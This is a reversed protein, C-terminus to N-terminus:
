DCSPCTHTHSTLTNTHVQRLQRKGMLVSSMAPLPITKGIIIDGGSVRTGPAILGDEELKEYSCNRMGQCTQMNPKGFEEIMAATKKSETDNYSRFFASRFLGRDIASQSM